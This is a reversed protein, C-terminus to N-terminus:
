IHLLESSSLFLFSHLSRNTTHSFNHFERKGKQRSKVCWTEETHPVQESVASGRFTVSYYASDLRRFASKRPPYKSPPIEAFSTNSGKNACRAAAVQVTVQVIKQQRQSYQNPTIRCCQFTRVAAPDYKSSVSLDSHELNRRFKPVQQRHARLPQLLFPYQSPKHCPEQASCTRGQSLRLLLEPNPRTTAAIGVYFIIWGSFVM